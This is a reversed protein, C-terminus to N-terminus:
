PPGAITRIAPWSLFTMFSLPKACCTERSMDMAGNRRLALLEVEHTEFVSGDPKGCKGAFEDPLLGQM